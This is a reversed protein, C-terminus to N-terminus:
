GSVADVDDPRLAYSVGTGWGPAVRGVLEGSDTYIFCEASETCSSYLGSEADYSDASGLEMFLEQKCAACARACRGCLRTDDACYARLILEDIDCLVYDQMCVTARRLQRYEAYM